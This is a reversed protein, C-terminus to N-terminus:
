LANGESDRFQFLRMNDASIIPGVDPSITKVRQYWTQLGKVEFNPVCNEGKKVTEGEAASNYLGFSIPGLEFYSYRENKVEAKKQFLKEYFRLARDMDEVTVYLSNLKM